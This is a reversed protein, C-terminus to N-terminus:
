ARASPSSSSRSPSPSPKASSPWPSQSAAEQPESRSRLSRSAPIPPVSIGQVPFTGTVSLGDPSNSISEVEPPAYGKVTDYPVLATATATAAVLNSTRAALVDSLPASVDTLTVDLDRVSINQETWEGVRIDVTPYEGAVAQTLFPFGGITVSPDHPLAYEAAIKRAIENQTFTVAVRDGVVLAIGLLVILILLTRM